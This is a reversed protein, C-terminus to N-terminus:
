GAQHPPTEEIAQVSVRLQATEATELEPPTQADTDVRPAAEHAAQIRKQLTEVQDKVKAIEPHEPTYRAELIALQSRLEAMQKELESLTSAGTSGTRVARTQQALMLMQTARQQQAQTIADNVSDLRSSLASLTQPNRSM